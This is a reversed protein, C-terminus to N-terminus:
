SGNPLSAGPIGTGVYLMLGVSPLMVCSFGVYIWCAQVGPIYAGVHSAAPITQFGYPYPITSAPSYVMAGAIPVATLYLPAFFSWVTGSCTCPIPSMAPYGSFGPLGQGHVPFPIVSVLILAALLYKM